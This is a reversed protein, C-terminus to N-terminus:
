YGLERWFSQMSPPHIQNVAESKISLFASNSYDSGGDEGIDEQEERETM